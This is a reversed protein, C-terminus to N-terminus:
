QEAPAQPEDPESLLRTLLTLPDAVVRGVTERVVPLANEVAYGEFDPYTLMDLDNPSDGTTYVATPHVGLLEILRKIGTSKFAEKVMCDISQSGPPVARLEYAFKDSVAAAGATSAELNPYDVTIETIEPYTTEYVTLKGDVVSAAPISAYNVYVYKSDIRCFHHEEPAFHRLLALATEAQMALVSRYHTEGGEYTVIVAGNNAVVFDVSLKEREIVRLISLYPRGTVVGFLNGRARWEAIAAHLEPTVGRYTVTGDYDTAYIRM